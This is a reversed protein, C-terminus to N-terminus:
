KKNLRLINPMFIENLLLREFKTQKKKDKRFILLGGNTLERITPFNWKNNIISELSSYNFRLETLHDSDKLYSVGKIIKTILKKDNKYISITFEFDSLDKNFTKKNLIYITNLIFEKLNELFVNQNLKILVDENSNIKEPIIFKEFENKLSGDNFIIDGPKVIKSNIGLKKYENLLISDELAPYKYDLKLDNYEISSAYLFNFTTNIEKIHNSQEAISSKDKLIELELSSNETDESYIFRPYIGTKKKIYMGISINNSINDKDKGLLKERKIPMLNDTQLYVDPQNLSKIMISCDHEKKDIAYHIKQYKNLKLFGYEGKFQIIKNKFKSRVNRLMYNEKDFCPILFTSYQIEKSIAKISEHWHDSHSHSLFVYDYKDLKPKSSQSELRLKDAFCYGSIWPDTIISSYPTIVEVCAHNIHHIFFNERM